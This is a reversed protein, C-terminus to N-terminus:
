FGSHTICRVRLLLATDKPVVRLPTVNGKLKEGPYLPFPKPFDTYLRIEEDGRRIKVQDYKDRVPIGDADRKPPNQQSKCISFSLQSRTTNQEARSTKCIFSFVAIIVRWVQVILYHYPRIVIMRQVGKSVVQEHEQVTFTAPGCVVRTVNRFVSISWVYNCLISM